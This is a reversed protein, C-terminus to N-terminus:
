CIILDFNQLENRTNTSVHQENTLDSNHLENITNTSVHQENTKAGLRRDLSSRTVWTDKGFRVFVSIAFAICVVGIIVNAPTFIGHSSDSDGSASDITTSTPDDISALTTIITIVWM